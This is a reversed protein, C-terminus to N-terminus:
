PLSGAGVPEHLENSVRLCFAFAKHYPFAWGKNRM